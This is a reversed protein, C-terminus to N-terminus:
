AHCSITGYQSVAKAGRANGRKWAVVGDSGGNVNRMSAWTDVCIAEWTGTVSDM